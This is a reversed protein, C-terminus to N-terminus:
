NTVKKKKQNPQTSNFFNSVWEIPKARNIHEFINIYKVKAEFTFM